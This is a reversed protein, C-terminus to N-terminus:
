STRFTSCSVSQRGCTAIATWMQQHYHQGASGRTGQPTRRDIMCHRVQHVSHDNTPEICVCFMFQFYDGSMAHRRSAQFTQPQKPFVADPPGIIEPTTVSSMVPLTERSVGQCHGLPAEFSSLAVEAAFQWRKADRGTTQSFDTRKAM